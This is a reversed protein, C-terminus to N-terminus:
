EIIGVNYRNITQLKIHNNKDLEYIRKQLNQLRKFVKFM